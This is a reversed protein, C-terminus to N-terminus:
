IMQILKFLALWACLKIVHNKFVNCLEPDNRLFDRTLAHMATFNKNGDNCTVKMNPMMKRYTLVLTEYDGRQKKL